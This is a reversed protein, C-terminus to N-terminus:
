ARRQAFYFWEQGAESRPNPFVVFGDVPATIPEGGQRTGITEGRKVPDFSRWETQRQRKRQRQQNQSAQRRFLYPQLAEVLKLATRNNLLWGASKDRVCIPSM